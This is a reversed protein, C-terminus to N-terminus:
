SGGVSPCLFICAAATVVIVPVEKLLRKAFSPHLERQLVAIQDHLGGQARMAAFFREDALVSDAKMNGIIADKSAILSDSLALARRLSVAVEQHQGELADLVSVGVSDGAEVLHARLQGATAEAEGSWM